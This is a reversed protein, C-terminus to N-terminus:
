VTLFSGPILKAQQLTLIAAFRSFGLENLFNIIQVTLILHLAFSSVIKSEGEEKHDFTVYLVDILCYLVDFPSDNYRGFIGSLLEHPFNEHPMGGM